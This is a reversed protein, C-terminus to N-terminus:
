TNFELRIDITESLDLEVYYLDVTAVVANDDYLPTVRIGTSFENSNLVVRPDYSMVTLLDDEIYTLLLDDLPDFPMDLIRTGFSPMMVRENLRTYIHNLIDQKVLEKDSLSLTKKDKYRVFSIGRYINKRAM